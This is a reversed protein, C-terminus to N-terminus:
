VRGGHDKASQRERAELDNILNRYRDVEQMDDDNLYTLVSGPLTIEYAAVFGTPLPDEETAIVAKIDTAEVFGAWLLGGRTDCIKITFRKDMM